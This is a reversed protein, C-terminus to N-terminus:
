LFLFMVTTVALTTKHDTALDVNVSTRMVSRTPTTACMLAVTVHSQCLFVLMQVCCTTISISEANESASWM